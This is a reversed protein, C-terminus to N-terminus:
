LIKLHPLHENTRAAHRRRAPCVNPQPLPSTLKHRPTSLFVLSAQLIHGFANFFWRHSNTKKQNKEKLRFILQVLVIGQEFGTTQLNHTVCVTRCQIFYYLFRFSVYEASHVRIYAGDCERGRSADVGTLLLFMVFSFVGWRQLM